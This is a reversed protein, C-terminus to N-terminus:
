EFVRYTALLNESAIRMVNAANDTVIYQRSGVGEVTDTSVFLNREGLNYIHKVMLLVAQKIPAPLLDATAIEYGATYRIKVSEPDCRVSLPWVGGYIPAISAKGQGGRNLVRFDTDEILTQQVGNGDIYTVSDVTLLPPYSLPIHQDRPWCSYPFWNRRIEWTQPRLAQGLWGGLAPDLQAVAADIVAQIMMDNASDTIRLQAKAEALTVVADTPREIVVLSSQMTRDGYWTM